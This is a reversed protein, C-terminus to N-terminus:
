GASKRDAGKKALVERLLAVARALQPDVPPKQGAKPEPSEQERFWEVVAELQKRDMAVLHDPQVDDGPPNDDAVPRVPAPGKALQAPRQLRGTRLLLAAQSEPLPVLSTVFVAGRSPQGVLIARHNDQLAAAVARGMAGTHEGILVALPWDRFLCDRDAKYEKQQGRADRMTWLPGGDLLGDAVLAAHAMDPGAALRLDLVLARIGQERILPELKRLEQLTSAKIDKLYLYGVPVDPDVRFAWGEESVRRYGEWSSFPVVARTMKLTRNEKSGPQRVVFTVPTGDEGQIRRVVQALPVGKMSRGDVEVILDGPRAGAVRAPGGAFPLVIQSLDEKPDMRIQIGTGVYRNGTHIGYRKVGQPSLYGFHDMEGRGGLLGYLLLNEELDQLGKAVDPRSSLERLLAAFQEATTVSSVRGSLKRSDIGANPGLLAKLGALLMHQRVPPDIDQELVLDTITWALRALKAPQDAADKAPPQAAAPGAALLAALCWLSKRATM